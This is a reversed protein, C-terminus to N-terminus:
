DSDFKLEAAASDRGPNPRWPNRVGAGTADNGFGQGPGNVPEYRVFKTAYDPRGNKSSRLTERLPVVAKIEMMGAHPEMGEVRGRRSHIDGVIAEMDVEPAMVEVEMMPELLVPSAKRAAEAFAKSAAIRFAMENSDIDHYSGGVLTATVGVIEHGRLVGGRMAELIGQKIPDIYQRPLAEAPMANVFQFGADVDNPDLHLGVHGYNGVGGTQRIYKGEGEAANRLTELLIVKPACDVSPDEGNCVATCVATCVEEIQLEDMGKVVIEAGRLRISVALIPRAPKKGESM